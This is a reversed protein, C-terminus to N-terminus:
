GEEPHGGGKTSDRKEKNSEWRASIEQLIAKYFGPKHSWDSEDSNKLADVLEWTKYQGIVQSSQKIANQSIQGSLGALFEKVRPFYKRARLLDATEANGGSAERMGEFEERLKPPLSEDFSEITDIFNGEKPEQADEVDANATPKELEQKGRKKSFDVKIVKPDKEEGVMKERNKEPEEGSNEKGFQVRM